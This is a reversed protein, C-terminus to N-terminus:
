PVGGRAKPEPAPATTVSTSPLVVDLKKAANRDINQAVTVRCHNFGSYTLQGHQAVRGVQVCVLGASRQGFREHM